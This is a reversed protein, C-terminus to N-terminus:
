SAVVVCSDQLFERAHARANLLKLRLQLLALHVDGLAPRTSTFTRDVDGTKIEWRVGRGTLQHKWLLNNLESVKGSELDWEPFALRWAQTPSKGDMLHRQYATLQKGREHPLPRIM